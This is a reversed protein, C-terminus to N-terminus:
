RASALTSFLESTRVFALLFPATTRLQSRHERLAALKTDEEAPELVFPLPALGAARPAATEPVGLLLGRPSPWAEGGHVIWYHTEATAATGRAAESALRGAARHDPHEDLLSPALILTPRAREIVAAFDRELSEGTYPHGPFLTGAYPVLASATYRSTYPSTRHADLLKELGQDPYGLFFQGQPPVGLATAAARAEGMRQRGLARMMQPHVLLEKEVFLSSLRSGDGSTLWVISVRGGAHLVRQIVGACCLTEDDPHPAVVLLSTRADIPPLAAAPPEAAPAAAAALLLVGLTAARTARPPM